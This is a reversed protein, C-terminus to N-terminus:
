WCTPWGAKASIREAGNLLLLYSLSLCRNLDFTANCQVIVKRGPDRALRHLCRRCVQDQLARKRQEM